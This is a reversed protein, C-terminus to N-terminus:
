SPRPSTSTLRGTEGATCLRVVLHELVMRPSGTSSKMRYDADRLDRLLRALDPDGFGRLQQRYRDFLWARNGLVAQVRERDARGAALAQTALLARVHGALLALLGVPNEEVLLRDLVRLARAADRDGVADTLQFVTFEASRTAAAQVDEERIVDRGGVFAALKDVENALNGLGPAVLQVLARAADPSLRKGLEQAYRQAWGVLEGSRPTTCAHVRSVARVTKTFRRREDLSTAVLIFISPPPGQELYASLRDQAAANLREVRLVVVVRTAGFFPLTDARTIVDEISISDVELRDLNLDREALPILEDLLRRLTHDRLWDDDGVILHVRRPGTPAPSASPKRARGSQPATSAPAARTGRSPARSRPAKPEDDM